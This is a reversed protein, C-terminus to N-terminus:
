GTVWDVTQASNNKWLVTSGSDNEWVIPNTTFSISVTGIYIQMALANPTLAADFSRAGGVPNWGWEIIRSGGGSYGDELLGSVRYSNDPRPNRVAQPDSIPYMGQMLQPHDPDWCENCALINTTVMKIVLPRLEHLRYRQGCVDCEAISHKGSAWPNPM